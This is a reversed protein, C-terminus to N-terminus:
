IACPTRSSKSPRTSGAITVKVTKTVRTSKMPGKPEPKMTGNSRLASVLRRVEATEEADLEKAIDIGHEFAITYVAHETSM